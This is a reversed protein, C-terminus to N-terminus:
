SELSKISSKANLRPSEVNELAFIVALNILEDAVQDNLEFKTIGNEM